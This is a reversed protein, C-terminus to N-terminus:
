FKALLIQHIAVNANSFRKRARSKQVCSFVSCCVVLVLVLCVLAGGVVLTATIPIDLDPLAQGEELENISLTKTM